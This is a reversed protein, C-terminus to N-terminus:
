SQISMLWLLQHVYCYYLLSKFLKIPVSFYPVHFTLGSKPSETRFGIHEQDVATYSDQSEKRERRRRWRKSGRM